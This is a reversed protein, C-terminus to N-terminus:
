MVVLLPVSVKLPVLMTEPVPVNVLSPAPVKLKPPEFALVKEPPVPISAPVKSIVLAVPNPVPLTPIPKPAVSAALRVSVTALLMENLKLVECNDTSLPLVAVNLPMMLPAPATFLSPRPVAANSLALM